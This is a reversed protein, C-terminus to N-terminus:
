GPLFIRTDINFRQHPRIKIPFIQNTYADFWKLKIYNKHVDLDLVEPPIAAPTIKQNNLWITWDGKAIYVIGGLSIERPGKPPRKGEKQLAEAEEVETDAAPRAILGDRSEEILAQEWTTFLLSPIQIPTVDPNKLLIRRKMEEIMPDGTRTEVPPLIDEGQSNAASEVGNEEDSNNQVGEDATEDVEAAADAEQAILDAIPDGGEQALAALPAGFCMGGLLLLFLAYIMRM